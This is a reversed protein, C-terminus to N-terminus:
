EANLVARVAEMFERVQYPKNVFGKAYAGFRELEKPDSSHGSSVVVRVKPNIKLLEKLCEEGGMQPMILDLVVLGISSWEKTYIELAEKGNGATIVIYRSRELIRKGLERVLEEDDVLLIKEAGSVTESVPAHLQVDPSEDTAAFYLRFTTGKGPHSDCDIWGHHQEMIGKAVSLGLGTGKKFDWGKTTFFPDFIREMREKGMGVGTDSVELLVYRGPKVGVHLRCYAEDVIVNKTEVRLKGGNPMAEKANILLNMLVQQVQGADMDAQCLDKALITEVEVMKCFTREMLNISDMVIGNLDLPKLSIEVKKSFGLLRQVMEAGKRGTALIKQLDSYNPDDETKESLILETYGNMITLLNNFDHAIGGTLTGVAEMKQAQFLQTRLIEREKEAQKREEIDRDAALAYKHGGLELLCATIELSFVTGDKTRHTVEEKLREGRLVRELREPALRASEPTDLDSIRLTLFEELTYGHMQAAVPNASVIQGTKEGEADIIYIADGAVEFLMRFREESARLAEEAKKRESIEERLQENARSLESTRKKVRSELEAHALQLAEETEKRVTIERELEQMKHELKNVVREDYRQLLSEKTERFERVLGSKGERVEALVEGLIELLEDPPLPKHIFRHAGMTMALEDDKDDTYAGTYFVLPISRLREDQKVKMCLQFGDMVPMLADTIIMDFRQIRLTALAEAGNRASATEHGAGKLLTELLYRAEEKDDVILVRIKRSEM